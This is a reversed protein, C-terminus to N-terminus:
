AIWRRHAVGRAPRAARESAAREGVAREGVAREDVAREGPAEGAPVTAEAAHRADRQAAQGSAGGARQRGCGGHGWSGGSGRCAGAGDTRTGQEVRVGIVARELVEPDVRHAAIVQQRQTM